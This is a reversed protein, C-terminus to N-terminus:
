KNPQPFKEDNRLINLYKKEEDVDFIPGLLKEIVYLNSRVHMTDHITVESGSRAFALPVLVQDSLYPDMIAHQRFDLFEDLLAKGLKEAPLGKKGPLCTGQPILGPQVLTAAIGPPSQYYGITEQVDPISKKITQVIREPVQPKRLAESSTIYLLPNGIQDTAKLEVAKNSPSYFLNVSIRAGGKPYFGVRDITIRGELGFKKLVPFTVYQLYEITPAWNVHTGGGQLEISIPQKSAIVYNQLSQVVLSLAAATSIGVARTDEPTNMWHNISITDSGIDNGSLEAGSLKALLELGIQHQLKIGPQRRGARINEVQLPIKMASAIAVALRLISGGGEFKNGDITLM